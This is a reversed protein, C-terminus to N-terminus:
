VSGVTGKRGVIIGPGEVIAEKHFGSIGGSGYVPYPGPERVRAALAKGYALELLAGIQAVKWGKPIWGMAEAFEFESSFLNRVDEPLPKRADGLSERVAARAQLPEPIPNGAALANDIVPDFDIFWSKFLAQAMSELTENIKRNLEIKDDLSGLIHAIARQESLDPVPVDFSEIMGKTLANRTGGSAAWGLMHNQMDPSVLFYRLFRADLQDSYPRIIAVHQNVRAPLVSSDVQCCRAVSDGTINLLVDGDEVSVNALQKAHKEKIFVLGSKDFHENRINQSRILAVEGQDLYVKSGGRPTAGSGVKSCLPGLKQFSYASNGM